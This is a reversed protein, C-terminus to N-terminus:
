RSQEFYLREFQEVPMPRAFYYGQFMDCGMQDLFRLQEITEVGETIVPMGLQKSLSIIMRLIKRSREEDQAAQLFVM